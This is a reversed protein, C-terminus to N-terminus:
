SICMKTRQMLYWQEYTTFIQVIKTWRMCLYLIDFEAYTSRLITCLPATLTPPFKAPSNSWWLYIKSVFTLNKMVPRFNAVQYIKSAVSPGLISSHFFDFSRVRRTPLEVYFFIQRSSKGKRGIIEVTRDFFRNELHNKVVLFLLTRTLPNM